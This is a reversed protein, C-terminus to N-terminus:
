APLQSIKAQVNSTLTHFFQNELDSLFGVATIAGLAQSLVDERLRIAPFLKAGADFVRDRGEIKILGAGGVNPKM